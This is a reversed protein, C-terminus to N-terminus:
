STYTLGNMKHELVAYRIFKVLTLDKRLNIIIFLSKFFVSRFVVGDLAGSAPSAGRNSYRNYVGPRKKIEGARFLQAM